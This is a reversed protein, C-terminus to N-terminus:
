GFLLSSDGYSLFRFDNKLAYDYIGRWNEEGVFASILLLLTSQPQHFNTVLIDVMKYEYGPVIIIGTRAILTTLNNSIMYNCIAELSQVSTIERREDESASASKGESGAMKESESLRNGSYPEWQEVASPVGSKICHIGIYYLSELTRTSTTGVAIVKKGARKAELLREIFEITISFPETHMKHGSIFESKVPIFTGAGVHLCVNACEIGKNKINQLEIETFHLGATPAAVSGRIKAYMTQYREVDSEESERNLYPPIPIRGCVDLIESFTMNGSWTFEVINSMTEGKEILEAKLDFSEVLQSSIHSLKGSKWRKANGLVAKWRCRGVSAFAQAYDSPDDPELCFVEIVAGTDKRFFLRAPVVKTNNFVMFSDAPLEDSINRFVTHRIKGSNYILLKSSDRQPLPYKAIRESPLDYTYDSIKIKPEVISKEQLSIYIYGM